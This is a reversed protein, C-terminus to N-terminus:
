LMKTYQLPKSVQEALPVPDTMSAGICYNCAKIYGVDYMSGIKKLLDEKSLSEELLNVSDSEIMPIAGLREAYAAFGCFYLRGRATSLCQKGGYCCNLFIDKLEDNSRGYDKIESRQYWQSQVTREYRICEDEFYEILASMKQSLLGYDSLKVYVKPNRLANIVNNEPIVTANSVIQVRGYNDFTYLFDLLEALRPYLFTEGGIVTIRDLYDVSKLINSVAKVTDDYDYDVPHMFYQMLSQCERCRLTCKETVLIILVRLKDAGTFVIGSMMDYYRNLLRHIQMLPMKSELESFDVDMFLDICDLIISFGADTLEDYLQKHHLSAILVPSDPHKEKLEAPSIVEYGSVQTNHKRTDSDCYCVFCVDKRMLAYAAFKGTDGAGYIILNGDFENYDQHKRGAFREAYEYRYGM